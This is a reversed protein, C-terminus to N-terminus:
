ALIETEMPAVIHVPGPLIDALFPLLEEVESGARTFYSQHLDVAAAESNWGSVALLDRVRRAIAAGSDVWNVPKGLNLSLEDRLLPFHTCALIVTDLAAYHESELLPQLVQRIAERAVAKGRLKDEALEVLRSSGVCIVECNPAFDDILQRTYLRSVTGPTALLAIVKSQSIEAAPKVAPVVGVIPISFRERISPLAVTSATNCAVVVMDPRTQKVLTWLVGEVRAILEAEPKTGYPFFGNDSAYSIQVQPLARRIESAISLGGVGSDFVLIHPTPQM